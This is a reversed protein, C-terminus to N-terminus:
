GHFCCPFRVLVGHLLDIQDLVVGQCVEHVDHLIEMMKFCPSFIPSRTEDVERTSKERAFRLVFQVELFPPKPLVELTMFPFGDAMM